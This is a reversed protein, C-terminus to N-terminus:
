EDPRCNSTGTSTRHKWTKAGKRRRIPVGCNQCASVEFIEGPTAQPPEDEDRASPRGLERREIPHEDTM